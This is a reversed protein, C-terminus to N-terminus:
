LGPAGLILTPVDLHYHYVFGNAVFANFGVFNQDSLLIKHYPYSLDNTSRRLGATQLSKLCGMYANLSFALLWGSTVRIGYVCVKKNTESQLKM